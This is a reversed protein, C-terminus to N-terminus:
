MVDLLQPGLAVLFPRLSEGLWDKVTTLSGKAFERIAGEVAGGLYSVEILDREVRTLAKSHLWYSLNIGSISFFKPMNAALLTEWSKM